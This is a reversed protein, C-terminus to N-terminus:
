VVVFFLLSFLISIRYVETRYVINANKYIKNCKIHYIDKISLNYKCLYNFYCIKKEQKKKRIRFINTKKNRICKKKENLIM